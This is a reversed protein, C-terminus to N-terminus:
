VEVKTIQDENMHFLRTTPVYKNDDSVWFLKTGKGTFMYEATLKGWYGADIVTGEPANKLFFKLNKKKNIKDIWHTKEEETYDSKSIWSVPINNYCSVSDVTKVFVDADRKSYQTLVAAIWKRSEGEANVFDVLAYVQSGYVKLSIISSHSGNDNTFTLESKAIEKLQQASPAKYYYNGTSSWGMINGQKRTHNKNTLLM